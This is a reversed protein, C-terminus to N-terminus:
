LSLPPNYEYTKVNSKHDHSWVIQYNAHFTQDSFYNGTITRMDYNHSNASGTYRRFLIEERDGNKYIMEKKMTKQLNEIPYRMKIQYTTENQISTIEFTKKSIPENTYKLNLVNYDPDVSSECISTIGVVHCPRIKVTDKTIKEPTWFPINGIDDMLLVDGMKIDSLSSLEFDYNEEILRPNRNKGNGVFYAQRTKRPKPPTFRQPQEPNM